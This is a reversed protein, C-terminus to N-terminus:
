SPWVFGTGNGLSSSSSLVEGTVLVSSSNVIDLASDLASSLDCTTNKAHGLVKTTKKLGTSVDVSSAQVTSDLSVVCLLFVAASIKRYICDM